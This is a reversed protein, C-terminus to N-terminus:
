YQFEVDSVDYPPRPAGRMVDMVEFCIKSYLKCFFIFCLWLLLWKFEGLSVTM